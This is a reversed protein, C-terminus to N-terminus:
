SLSIVSCFACKSFTRNPHKGRRVQFDPESPDGRASAFHNFCRLYAFHLPKRDDYLDNARGKLFRALM